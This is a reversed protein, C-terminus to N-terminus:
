IIAVQPPSPLANFYNTLITFDFSRVKSAGVQAKLWNVLGTATENHKLLITNIAHAAKVQPAGPDQNIAMYYKGSPQTPDLKHKLFFLNLLQLLAVNFACMAGAPQGPPAPPVNPGPGPALSPAGVLSEWSELPPLPKGAATLLQTASSKGTNFFFPTGGGKKAAVIQFAHDTLERHLGPESRGPLLKFQRIPTIDYNAALYSYNSRNTHFDKPITM